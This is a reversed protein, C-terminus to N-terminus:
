IGFLHKFKLDLIERRQCVLLHYAFMFRKFKPSRCQNSSQAKVNSMKNIRMIKDKIKERGKMMIDFFQLSSSKKHNDGTGGTQSLKIQVIRSYRGLTNFNTTRSALM